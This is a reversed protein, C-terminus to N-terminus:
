ARLALIKLLIFGQCWHLHVSIWPYIDIPKDTNIYVFDEQSDGVIKKIHFGCNKEDELPYYIVTCKKELIGFIDDRIAVNKIICERRIDAIIERIIEVIQDWQM